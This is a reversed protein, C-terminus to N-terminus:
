VRRVLFVFYLTSCQCPTSVLNNIIRNLLAAQVQEYPNEMVCYAIGLERNIRERELTGVRSQVVLPAGRQSGCHAAVHPLMRPNHRGRM